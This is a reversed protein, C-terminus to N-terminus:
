GKSGKNVIEGEEFQSKKGTLEDEKLQLENINWSTLSTNTMKHIM